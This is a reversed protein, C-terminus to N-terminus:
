SMKSEKKKTVAAAELPEFDEVDYVVSVLEIFEQSREAIVTIDDPHVSKEFTPVVIPYAADDDFSLTTVVAWVPLKKINNISKIYKSIGKLATPSVNVIAMDGFNARCDSDVSCILLRRGNRCAKGKGNSASQFQNKPCDRCNSHQKVPSIENPVLDSDVDGIAFCAPPTTTDPDYPRDYYSHDFVTSLIICKLTTGLKDDGIAFKKGKTSMFPVQSTEGEAQQQASRQLMAQVEAPLQVEGATVIENM